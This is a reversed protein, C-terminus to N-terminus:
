NLGDQYSQGQSNKEHINVGILSYFGLIKAFIEQLKPLRKVSDEDSKINVYAHTNGLAIGYIKAIDHIPTNGNFDKINVSFGKSKFFEVTDRLRVLYADPVKGHRGQMYKIKEHEYEFFSLLFYLYEPISVKRDDGKDIFYNEGSKNGQIVWDNPPTLLNYIIDKGTKDKANIDAGKEILLKAMADSKVYFLPTRGEEDRINVDIGKSLIFNVVEINDITVAAHLLTSKFTKIGINFLTGHKYIGYTTQSGTWEIKGNKINEIITNEATKYSENTYYPNYHSLYYLSSGCGTIVV